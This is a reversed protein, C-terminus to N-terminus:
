EVMFVIPLTYITKVSKGKNKGSIFRPLKKILRVAEKELKIHPARVKINISNGKEDITFQIYIKHKGERLDLSQTTKINFNEQVFKTINRKFHKKAEEKSLKKAEIFRPPNDISGFSCLIDNIPKLGVEGIETFNVGGNITVEKKPCYPITSTIPESTNFISLSDIMTEPKKITDILVINEIKQKNGDEYKCSFLTTGMVFFLVLIFLKQFSLQQKFTIQPIEITITDLQKKYFHGCIKEKKNEVLYEQIEKASKKTFDVVTKSCFDCFKGKEIPTMKNWSKHCPKPITIKFKSSM